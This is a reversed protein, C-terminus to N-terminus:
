NQGYHYNNRNETINWPQDKLKGKPLQTTHQKITWIFEPNCVEHFNHYFTSKTVSPRCPPNLDRIFAAKETAKRPTYHTKDPLLAQPLKQGLGSIWAGTRSNVAWETECIYCNTPSATLQIVPIILTKLTETAQTIQTARHLTLPSLHLFSPFLALPWVWSIGLKTKNTYIIQKTWEWWTQVWKRQQFAM